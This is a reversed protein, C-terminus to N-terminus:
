ILSKTQKKSLLKVMITYPIGIFSDWVLMKGEMFGYKRYLELASTNILYVDLNLRDYDEDEAFSIAKEVLKKGIGLGRYKSTVGVAEIRGVKAPVPYGDDMLDETEAKLLGLHGVIEKEKSLPDQIIALM